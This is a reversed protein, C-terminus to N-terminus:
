WLRLDMVVMSSYGDDSERVDCGDHDGDNNSDSDCGDDCGDDCECGDDGGDDGSDCGDDGNEGDSHSDCGGGDSDCGDSEGDSHSDCGDDGGESDCGDSEGDSHSDCGDDGGDSDCGDSEGDGSDCGGGDSDCGDSEGDSHSDCGDDGGDSDCGDSEGDSHSDCGDDGGDSDGDSHSDCGDDGGESDCGDSEGDSHSDCGDDCNDIRVNCRRQICYLIKKCAMIRRIPLISKIFICVTMKFWRTIKCSVFCHYSWIHDNEHLHIFCLRFCHKLFQVARKLKGDMTIIYMYFCNLNKDEKTVSMGLSYKSEEIIDLSRDANINGNADFTLLKYKTPVNEYCSPIEIVTHVNDHEDVALCRIKNLIDGDNETLAFCDDDIRLPLKRIWPFQKDNQQLVANHLVTNNHLVPHYREKGIKITPWNLCGMSINTFKMALDILLANIMQISNVIVNRKRQNFRARLRSTIGKNSDLWVSFMAQVAPLDQLEKLYLLCDQVAAEPDDLCELIRTVGEVESQDEVCAQSTSSGDRSEGSIELSAYLRTVGEKFFCLSARLDKRSLGDLKSKIDDLERVIIQKCQQNNVDGEDLKEATYDQLKSCLLGITSNLVGSVIASMKVKISVSKRVSIYFIEIGELYR